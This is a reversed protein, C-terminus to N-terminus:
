AGKGMGGKVVADFQNKEFIENIKDLIETPSIRGTKGFMANVREESTSHNVDGVQELRDVMFVFGSAILAVQDAPIPILTSKQVEPPLQEARLVADLVPKLYLASALAMLAGVNEDFHLIVKSM